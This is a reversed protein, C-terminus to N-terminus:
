MLSRMDTTTKAFQPGRHLFNQPGWQWPTKSCCRVCNLKQTEIVYDHESLRPVGKQLNM